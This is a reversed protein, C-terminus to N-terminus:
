RIPRAGLPAAGHRLFVEPRKPTTPARVQKFGWLRLGSLARVAGITAGKSRCPAAYRSSAPVTSSVRGDYRPSPWGAGDTRLRSCELVGSVPPKARDRLDSRPLRVCRSSRPAKSRLPYAALVNRWSSVAWAICPSRRAPAAVPGSTSRRLTSTSQWHTACPPPTAVAGPNRVQPQTGGSRKSPPDSLYLDVRDVALQRLQDTEDRARLLLLQVDALHSAFRSIRAAPKPYSRTAHHSDAGSVAAAYNVLLGLWTSPATEYWCLGVRIPHGVSRAAGGM